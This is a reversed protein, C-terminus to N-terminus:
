DEADDDNMESIKALIEDINTLNGINSQSGKPSPLSTVHIIDITTKGPELFKHIHIDKVIGMAILEPVMDGNSIYDRLVTGRNFGHVLTLRPVKLGHMKRIFNNIRKRAKDLTLGHLDIQQHPHVM